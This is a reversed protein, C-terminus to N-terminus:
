SWPPRSRSARLSFALLGSLGRRRPEEAREMRQPAEWSSVIAGPCRAAGSEGLSGLRVAGTKLVM